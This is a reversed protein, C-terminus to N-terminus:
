LTDDLRLSNRLAQSVLFTEEMNLKIAGVLTGNIELNAFKLPAELGFDVKRTDVLDDYKSAM